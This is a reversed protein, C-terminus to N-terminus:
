SRNGPMPSLKATVPLVAQGPCDPQGNEHALGCGAAGEYINTGMAEFVPMAKEFIEKDGGVMISLTVKPVPTVAPSLHMTDNASQPKMM